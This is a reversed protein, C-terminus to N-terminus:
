DAEDAQVQAQVGMSRQMSNLAHLGDERMMGTQYGKVDAVSRYPRPTVEHFQDPNM